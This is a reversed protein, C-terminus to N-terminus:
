DQTILDLGMDAVAATLVAPLLTAEEITLQSAEKYGRLSPASFKANYNNSVTYSVTDNIKVGAEVLRAASDFAMYGKAEVIKVGGKSGVELHAEINADKLEEILATLLNTITREGGGAQEVLYNSKARPTDEGNYKISADAEILPIATYTKIEHKKDQIYASVNTASYFKGDEVYAATVLHSSPGKAEVSTQLYNNELSVVEKMKSEKNKVKVKTESSFGKVESSKKIEEPLKGKYEAIKTPAEERSVPTYSEGGCSTFTLLLVPFLVLSSKKM